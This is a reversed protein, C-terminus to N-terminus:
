RQYKRILMDLAEQILDSKDPKKGTRKREAIQIEEVSEVQDHRVYWTVKALKSVTVPEPEPDLLVDTGRKEASKREKLSIRKNAM